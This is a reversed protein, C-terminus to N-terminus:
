GMKLSLYTLCGVEKRPGQPVLSKVQNSVCLQGSGSAPDMRLCVM